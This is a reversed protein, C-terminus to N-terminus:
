KIDWRLKAFIADTDNKLILYNYQLHYNWGTMRTRYSNAPITDKAWGLMEDRLPTGSIKIWHWDKFVSKIKMEKLDAFEATPIRDAITHGNWVGLYPPWGAPMSTPLAASIAITAASPSIMTTTYAPTSGM